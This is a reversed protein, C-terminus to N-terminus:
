AFIGDDNFSEQVYFLLQRQIKRVDTKRLVVSM